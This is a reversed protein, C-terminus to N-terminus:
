SEQPRTMENVWELYPPFGGLIDLVLLEPTDYPHLAVWRDELLPVTASTTKILLISEQEEEIKGQWRYISIAQPIVNVCACLQEEVLIRAIDPAVALPATGVCIRIDVTM